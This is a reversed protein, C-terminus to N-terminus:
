YEYNEECLRRLFESHMSFKAVNSWFYAIALNKFSHLYNTIANPAQKISVLINGAHCDAHVFNYKMLM